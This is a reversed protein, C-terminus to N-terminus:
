DDDLQVKLDKAKRRVYGQKKNGAGVFGQVDEGLGNVLIALASTKWIGINEKDKSSRWITTVLFILSFVLLAVPLTIWEWRIDVIIVTKYALGVSVDQRHSSSLTNRRIVQNMVLVLEAMHDTVNHPTDWPLSPENVIVLRNYEGLWYVKLVPGTKVPNKESPLLFTSPAMQMFVQNVKRATTNSVQYTSEGGTVSHRDPLTMSFDAAYVSSDDPDWTLETTSEFQRVTMTEEFLEGDVVESKVTKVVWHVECEQIVPTANRRAGDFGDPTSVLVFDVLAHPVDQFQISGDFYLTNTLIDTLAFFRTALVEGVQGDADIEYGSMLQPLQDPVNLYWGCSTMNPNQGPGSYLVTSHWEASTNKCGFELFDQSLDKCQFDAAVTEFPDYTCNGTPCNFPIGPIVGSRVWYPYLFADMQTDQPTTFDGGGNPLGGQWERERDPDYNITRAITANSSVDVIHRSPYAIIQQFFLDLPLSLLIIAAGVSALSSYVDTDL